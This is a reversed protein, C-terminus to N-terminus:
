PRPGAFIRAINEKAGVYIDDGHGVLLRELDLNLHELQRTKRYLEAFVRVRARLVDPVVPVPIYDVAGHQYGKIRDPDTVSIASILGSRQRITSSMVIRLRDGAM